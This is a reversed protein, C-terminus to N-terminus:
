MVGAIETVLVTLGIIDLLLGGVLLFIGRAGTRLVTTRPEATMVTLNGGEPTMVADADVAVGEPVPNTTGVVTAREGLSLAGEMLEIRSKIVGTDGMHTSPEVDLREADVQALMEEGGTVTSRTHRLSLDAETPDVFIETTGDSVIFTRCEIGSDISPDGTGQIQQNIKYEYAVCEKGQIPSILTGSTQSPRVHGRIRVPENTSVAEDMSVSDTTSLRWWENVGRIGSVTAALGTGTAVIGGLLGPLFGDVALIRVAFRIIFRPSEGVIM